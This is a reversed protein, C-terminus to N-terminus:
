DKLFPFDLGNLDVQFIDYNFLGETENIRAIVAKKLRPYVQFHTDDNVSNFTAGLNVPNGWVGNVNESYYVDYGGMGPLADSSFFLFRGNATIFPTTERGDTNITKLPNKMDMWVGNKREISYIDTMSEEAKRDSVFYLTQSFDGNDNFITDTITAAGDFYSTNIAKNKILDIKEFLFTEDSFVEFIDSSKTSKEKSAATNITGLAYKGDKSIYNLADFGETNIGEIARASLIWENKEADWEYHVIDEFFRQDGVNENNGKSEPTRATYFLHLGDSSLIAGYEAFTSNVNSSFPICKNLIGKEKQDLAFKCQALYIPIGYYAANKEGFEDKAKSYYNIAENLAGLRHKIQGQLLALDASKKDSILLEAKQANEDAAYFNTLELETMAVWFYSEWENPDKEIASKFVMYADKVRGLDLLDEGDKILQQSKLQNIKSTKELQGLSSFCLFLISFLTISKKKMNTTNM